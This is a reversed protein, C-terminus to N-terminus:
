SPPAITHEHNVEKKIDLIYCGERTVCQARAAPLQEFAFRMAKGYSNERWFTGDKLLIFYRGRPMLYALRTDTTM